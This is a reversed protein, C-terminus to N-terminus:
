ALALAQPSPNPRHGAFTRISKRHAPPSMLPICRERLLQDAQLGVDDQCARGESGEIPPLHISSSESIASPSLRAVFMNLGSVARTDTKGACVSINWCWRCCLVLGRAKGIASRMLGITM